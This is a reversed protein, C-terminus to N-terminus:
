VHDGRPGAQNGGNQSLAYVRQASTLVPVDPGCSKVDAGAQEDACWTRQLVLVDM